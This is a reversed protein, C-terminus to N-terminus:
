NVSSTIGDAGSSTGFATDVSIQLQYVHPRHWALRKKQMQNENKQYQDHNEPQTTKKM